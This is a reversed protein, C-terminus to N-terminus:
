CWLPEGDFVLMGFSLDLLMVRWNFDLCRRGRDYAPSTLPASLFDLIAWQPAWPICACHEDFGWTTTGDTRLEVSAMLAETGVVVVRRGEGM